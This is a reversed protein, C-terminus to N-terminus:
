RAPSFPFGFWVAARAISEGGPRIGRKSGPHRAGRPPQPNPAVRGLISEPRDLPHLPSQPSRSNRQAGVQVGVQVVPQDGQSSDIISWRDGDIALTFTRETGRGLFGDACADAGAAEIATPLSAPAITGTTWVGAISSSGLGFSQSPGMPISLTSDPVRTFPAEFEIASGAQAFCSEPDGVWRSIAFPSNCRPGASRATSSTRRRPTRRSCDCSAPPRSTGSVTRSARPREETTRDISFGAIGKSSWRTDCRPQM